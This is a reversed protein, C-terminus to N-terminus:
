AARARDCYASSDDAVHKALHFSVHRLL